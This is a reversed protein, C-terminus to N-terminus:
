LWGDRMPKDDLDIRVPIGYIRDCVNIHFEDSSDIKSRYNTDNNIFCCAQEMFSLFTYDKPYQSAAGPIGAWFIQPVIRETKTNTCDLSSLKAEIASNKQM